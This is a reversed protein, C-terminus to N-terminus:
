ASKLRRSVSATPGSWGPATRASSRSCSSRSAESGRFRGRRFRVLHRLARPHRRCARDIGRRPGSPGPVCIVALEIRDPIEEISRYSRVGAVSVAGRNVPHVAGSFGAALMNRFLEGGISGRRQSAGIVAVTAPKFFPRLSAVVAQHDREDVRDRLAETAGIPFRLELEGGELRQSLKFGADAFVGIARRNDAMVDAIFREIGMRRARIALQELLRTGIGRGQEDDSVAFAMEATEGGDLRAFSALAVIQRELTGILSGVDNGDELFRDVLDGDVRRIGHFRLYRSRDSLRAFFEVLAGRDAAHPPRLRLTGGDRLVVDIVDDVPADIM